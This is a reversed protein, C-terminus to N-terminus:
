SEGCIYNALLLPPYFASSFVNSIYISRFAFPGLVPHFFSTSTSTVEVRYKGPLVNSFFFENSENALGITKKEDKSKGDLRLLTLSVSSDCREKCVVSGHISVQAKLFFFLTILLFKVEEKKRILHDVLMKDSSLHASKRSGYEM